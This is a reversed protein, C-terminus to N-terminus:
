HLRRETERMNDSLVTLAIPKKLGGGSNKGLLDAQNQIFTKIERSWVPRPAFPRIDKKRM